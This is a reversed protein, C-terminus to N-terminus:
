QLQQRLREQEESTMVEVDARRCTHDLKAPTRARPPSTPRLTEVGAFPDVNEILLVHYPPDGIILNVRKM